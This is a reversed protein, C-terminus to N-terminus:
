DSRPCGECPYYESRLADISCSSVAWAVWEVLRCASSGCWSRRANGRAPKVPGLPRGARFSRLRGHQLAWATHNVLVEMPGDGDVDMLYSTVFLDTQDGLPLEWEVAGSSADHCVIASNSESTPWTFLIVEVAGDRDLDGLVSAAGQQHERDGVGALELPLFVRDLASPIQASTDEAREWLCDHAVADSGGELRGDANREPM